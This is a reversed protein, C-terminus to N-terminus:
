EGGGPKLVVFRNGQRTALLLLIAKKTGAKRVAADFDEVNRVPSRNIEIIVDGEAIHAGAAASPEEVATVVVGSKVNMGLKGALEPTLTQVTLGLNKIISEGKAAAVASDTLPSIKVPIPNRKGDRVVVLETKTGPATLAVMSRLKSPNEVKQGNYEVIVDGPKVGAEAAPTGEFVQSVLAGEAAKLGFREAMEPTVDQIQVGLWGRTVKGTEILQRAVDKAMNIPIAFGVGVSGGTRSVIATNVGVAEGRTNLLPGGSNGMNVAADTQIFDEYAEIGLGTRGLASVVGTSVTERLGFPSGIAMVFEGVKLKDSDGVKLATLASAKIQVVAIDTQKDGGVVKGDYEAGSGLLVKIDEAGEIVHNNTLIYGKAADIVFGSGLGQSRFRREEPMGRRPFMEDFMPPLEPFPPMERVRVTRTTYISVVAPRVQTSLQSVARSFAELVAIDKGPVEAEGARASGTVLAILISLGVAIRLRGM